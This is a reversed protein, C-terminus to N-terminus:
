CHYAPLPLLPSTISLLRSNRPEYRSPVKHTHVVRV